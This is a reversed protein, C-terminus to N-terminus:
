FSYHEGMCSMPMWVTLCSSRSRGFCAECSCRQRQSKSLYGKTKKGSFGPSTSIWSFRGTIAKKQKPSKLKNKEEWMKIVLLLSFGSQVKLVQSRFGLLYGLQRSWARSRDLLICALWTKDSYCPGGERWNGCVPGWKERLGRWSAKLIAIELLMRNGTCFINESVMAVKEVARRKEKWAKELSDKLSCIEELM